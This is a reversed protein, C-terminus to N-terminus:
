IRRRFLTTHVYTPHHHQLGVNSACQISPGCWVLIGRVKVHRGGKGGMNPKQKNRKLVVVATYLLKSVALRPAGAGSRAHRRGQRGALLGTEVGCKVANERVVATSRYWYYRRGRGIHNISRRGVYKPMRGFWWM